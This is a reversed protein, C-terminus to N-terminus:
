FGYKAIVTGDSKRLLALAAHQAPLRFALHGGSRKDILDISADEAADSTIVYLAADRLTTPYILVGPTVENKQEFPPAIGLESLVFKYAAAAADLNNALELPYASWFIRGKGHTTQQFATGDKFRLVELWSQANQDFSLPISRKGLRLEANHFTLPEVQVELGVRPARLVRHWHEDRAIPGTIFLNGGGDVYQLLAQWTKETLAQASPLIVLKPSGLKAIQNEAIVFAPVRAYYCLARVANQQAAVQTYVLASFQVAQSTLIAVQPREPNRLDPGAAKSFGAFTRLVAAEPKETEDARLAGIPVENGETMYSNTNWLWEIVGSGQVFSVAVKRELLAADDEPTRRAIEDLTLERQLGTEQILMPLGPQKAVLSDWLLADNQWWSHNTTFDVASGLFVPNLRDTYGGEDQGVTIPQEAGSSRIANRMEKAWAAFSEQAFFLFDYIKLSNNGIYMGRPDFEAEAPVPLPSDASSAPLNWADALSKRDPYRRNLWTNWQESEFRDGNPRTRWLYKSFSPENILDWALFPVDHFRAAVSSILTKQRRVADPDLYANEGGLIDPLFAFFNFQVPLGHRRATMLYAEFTRLTREYPRGNEDCFKDWGTWWGTRIMNLGAASIQELDRDWVYVNPHDFYLRQVDSAMYTTGVVALPKGNLEFYDSNVSLRPGSRLYSEDRIWFGSHYVAQLTNDEFLESSVAYFGRANPIRFTVPLVQPLNVKEDFVKAQNGDSVVTIRATLPVKSASPSDRRVELQIPEDPLYLPLVPRVSFDESGHLAAAALAPLIQKAAPGTFFNADLEANLFIWRGGTFGDRLHDIQIAPASLKRGDRTGWALADLRADIYGATGGRPYLGFESLRIIPSFARKWSFSSLRTVVDPNTEFALGASGPTIQYQDILLTQIFRVSYERLKWGTANKYAARTFPRGGLVVLDGGRKLFSFLEPWADEPFASGYPLVCLRTSTEKLSNRFTELNAFQAEPFLARLQEGSPAASDASPFDPEEFVVVSKQPEAAFLGPQVLLILLLSFTFRLRSPVVLSYSRSM